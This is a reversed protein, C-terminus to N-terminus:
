MGRYCQATGTHYDVEYEIWAHGVYRMVGGFQLARYAFKEVSRGASTPETAACYYFYISSRYQPGASYYDLYFNASEDKIPTETYQSTVQLYGVEFVEADASPDYWIDGGGHQMTGHVTVSVPCQRPEEHSLRLGQPNSPVVSCFHTGHLDFACQRFGSLFVVAIGAAALRAILSRTSTQM